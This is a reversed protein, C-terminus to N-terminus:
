FNFFLADKRSERFKRKNFKYYRAPKHAVGKQKEELPEVYPAKLLKKRFNRNDLEQGLIVEYLNQIQRITFKYPLMEFLLPEYRITKRLNDIGKRIIAKHDFALHPLESVCHWSANNKIANKKKSNHIKILSYYASTVVRSITLGSTQELWERDNKSKLRDPKGFVAFQKLYINTLGTLEELVRKAADNLDEMRRILDGPLKYVKKNKLSNDELSDREILLVKLSDEYFGFIVCDVSIHPNFNKYEGQM